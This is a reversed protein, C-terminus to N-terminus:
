EYFIPERHKIFLEVAARADTDLNVFKLGMGPIMDPMSPNYDRTWQVLCMASCNRHLAPVTFTVEVVDGIEAPNHTAVFLGGSSLNELFGTYFNHESAYGVEVNLPFRTCEREHQEAQAAPPEAPPPQAPERVPPVEMSEPLAFADAPIPPPAAGVAPHHPGSTPTAVPGSGIAAPRSPPATVSPPELPILPASVPMLTPALAMDLEAGARPQAVKPRDLAIPPPEVLVEPPRRAAVGESVVELRPPSMGPEPPTPRATLVQSEQRRRWAAEGKGRVKKMKTLLIPNEEKIPQLEKTLTDLDTASIPTLRFGCWGCFNADDHVEKRCAACTKM